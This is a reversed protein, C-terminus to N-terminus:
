YSLRVSTKQRAAEDDALYLATTSLSRHGLQHQAQKVDGERVWMM